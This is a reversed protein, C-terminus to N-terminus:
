TILLRCGWPMWKTMLCLRWNAEEQSVYGTPQTGNIVYEGISEIFFDSWKEDRVALADNVAFLTEAEYQSLTGDSWGAKRLAALEAPDIVGDASAKAALNGFQVSM